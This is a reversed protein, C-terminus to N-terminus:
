RVRRPRHRTAPPCTGTAIRRSSRTMAGVPRGTPPPRRTARRRWRRAPVPARWGRASLGRFLGTPALYGQNGFLRSFSGAPAVAKASSCVSIAMACGAALSGGWIASTLAEGCPRAPRRDRVPLGGLRDLRGAIAQRRGLRIGGRGWLDPGAAQGSRAARRVPIRDCGSMLLARSSQQVVVRRGSRQAGAARLGQRVGNGCPWIRHGHSRAHCCCRMNGPRKHQRPTRAPWGRRGNSLPRSPPEAGTSCVSDSNPRWYTCSRRGSGNSLCGRPDRLM